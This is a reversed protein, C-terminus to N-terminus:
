NKDEIPVLEHEFFWETRLDPLRCEYQENGLCIISVIIDPFNKLQCRQGVTYAFQHPPNNPYEQNPCGGGGYQPNYPYYGRQPGGYNRPPYNNGGRNNRNNWNNYAM